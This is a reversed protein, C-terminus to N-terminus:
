RLIVYKGVASHSGLENQMDVKFLYVGNAMGQSPVSCTCGSPDMQKGKANPCSEGAFRRGRTDYMALEWRAPCDGKPKTNLRLRIHGDTRSPGPNPYMFSETLVSFGAAEKGYRLEFAREGSGPITVDLSVQEKMEVVTKTSREVLILLQPVSQAGEWFLTAKTGPKGAVVLDWAADRPRFDNALKEAGRRFFVATGGSVSPPKPVDFLDDGERARPHVGFYSAADAGQEDKVGVLVSFDSLSSGNEEVMSRSRGGVDRYAKALRRQREASAPVPFYVLSVEQNAFLFYGKGPSLIGTVDDRQVYGTPTYEFIVPKLWENPPAVAKHLPLRVGDKAVQVSGWLLDFVFPTAIQNFGPKLGIRYPEEHDVAVGSVPFEASQDPLKIWAARGVAVKAPRVFKMFEETATAAPDWVFIKLASHPFLTAVSPDAPEAQISVMQWHPGAPVVGSASFRISPPPALTGGTFDFSASKMKGGGLEGLSVDTEFSTSAASGGASTIGGSVSFSQAGLLTGVGLLALTAFLLRAPPSLSENAKM